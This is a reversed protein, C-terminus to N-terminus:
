SFLHRLPKNDKDDQNSEYKKLIEPLSVNTAEALVALAKRSSTEEITCGPSIAQFDEMDYKSPTTDMTFWLSGDEKRIITAM